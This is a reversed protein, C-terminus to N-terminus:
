SAIMSTWLHYCKYGPIAEHQTHLQVTLESLHSFAQGAAAFVQSLQLLFLRTFKSFFNWREDIYMFIPVATLSEM